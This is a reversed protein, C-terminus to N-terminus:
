AARAFDGNLKMREIDWLMGHSNKLEDPSMGMFAPLFEKGEKRAKLEEQSLSKRSAREKRWDNLLSAKLHEAIQAAQENTEFDQGPFVVPENRRKRAEEQERDRKAQEAEIRAKREAREKAQEEASLAPQVSYGNKEREYSRFWKESGNRLWFVLFKEVDDYNKRSKHALGLEISEDLTPRGSKGDLCFFEKKLKEKFDASILEGGRKKGLNSDQASELFSNNLQESLNNQKHLALNTVPPTDSKDGGGQLNTVGKNSEDEQEATEESPSDENSEAEQTAALLWSIAYFKYGKPHVKGTEVLFGSALLEKLYRKFTRQSIGLLLAFSKQRVWLNPSNPGTYLLLIMMLEKANASVKSLSFASPIVSKHSYSPKLM